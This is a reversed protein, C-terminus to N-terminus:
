ETSNKKSKLYRLVWIVACVLIMAVGTSATKKKDM